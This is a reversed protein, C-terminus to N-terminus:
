RVEGEAAAKLGDAFTEFSPQLDPIMRFMMGALLGTYDERMRFTSGEGRAEVEFRRAGRFLGLPMGSEWIMLRGPELTSVKIAFARKPDVESWLKITEGEAIRGDIKLISFSGDALRAADTLIPWVRDPPADIDRTVEYYPM